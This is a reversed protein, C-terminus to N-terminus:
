IIDLGGHGADLVIVIENRVNNSDKFVPLVFSFLLLSVMFVMVLIISFIKLIKM